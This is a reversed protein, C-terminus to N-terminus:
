KLYSRLTPSGPNQQLVGKAVMLPITITHVFTRLRVDRNSKEGQQNRSEPWLKLCTDPLRQLMLIDGKMRHPHDHLCM